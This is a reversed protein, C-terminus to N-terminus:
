RKFEMSWISSLDFFKEREPTNDLLITQAEPYKEKAWTNLEKKTKGFKAIIRVDCGAMSETLREVLIIYKGRLEMPKRAM